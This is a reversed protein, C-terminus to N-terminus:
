QSTKACLYPSSSALKGLEQLDAALLAERCSQWFTRFPGISYQRHMTELSLHPRFLAPRKLVLYAKTCDGESANM